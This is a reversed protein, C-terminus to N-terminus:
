RKPSSPMSPFYRINFNINFFYFALTLDILNVSCCSADRKFSLKQISYSNKM